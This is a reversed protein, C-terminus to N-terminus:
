FINVAKGNFQKTYNMCHEVCTKTLNAYMDM